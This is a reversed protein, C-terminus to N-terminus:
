AVSMNSFDHKAPGHPVEQLPLIFTRLRPEKSQMKHFPVEDIRNWSCDIVAAGMSRVVPADERSVCRTAAPSLCVGRFRQGLRLETVVRLRVLKRGSCAKPNCHGLDWMALTSVCRETGDNNDGGRSGDDGNDGDNEADEEGGEDDDEQRLM